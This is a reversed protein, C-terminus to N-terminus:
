GFSPMPGLSHLIWMVAAVAALVAVVMSIFVWKLIKLGKSPQSTLALAEESLRMKEACRPCAADEDLIVSRCQDCIKM